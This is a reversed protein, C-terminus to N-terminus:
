YFFLFVRAKKNKRFGVGVNIKIKRVAGVMEEDKRGLEEELVKGNKGIWLPFRVFLFEPHCLVTKNQSSSSKNPTNSGRQHPLHSRSKEGNEM